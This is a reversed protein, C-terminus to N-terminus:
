ADQYYQVINYNLKLGTLHAPTTINSLDSTSASNCNGGDAMIYMYVNGSPSTQSGDGSFHIARPKKLKLGFQVTKQQQQGSYFDGGLHIKKTALIRVNSMYNPDLSSHYDYITGNCFPNPNFLVTALGSPTSQPNGIISFIWVKLNLPGTTASQQIFQLSLWSSTLKIDNGIRGSEGTGQSPYPTIDLSFYGNSNYNVQGLVPSASAGSNNLLFSKKEPVSTKELATIRRALATTPVVRKRLPVRRGKRTGTTKKANKKPAM